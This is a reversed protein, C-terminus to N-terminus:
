KVWLLKIRDAFSGRKKRREQQVVVVDDRQIDFATLLADFVELVDALEKIREQDTASAVEQAEEMLKALLAQQYDSKSMIEIQCDRGDARIIDPIRDRVLKNYIKRNM